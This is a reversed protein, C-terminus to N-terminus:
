HVVDEVRCVVIHTEVEAVIEEGLAMDESLPATDIIELADAERQAVVQIKGLAFILTLSGALVHSLTHSPPLRCRQWKGQTAKQPMKREETRQGADSEATNKQAAM